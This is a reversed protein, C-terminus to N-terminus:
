LTGSTLETQPTRGGKAVDHLVLSFPGALPGSAAASAFDEQGALRRLDLRLGAVDALCEVFISRSM